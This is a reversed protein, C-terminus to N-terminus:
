VHSFLLFHLMSNDFCDKRGRIHSLVDHPVIYLDTDNAAPIDSPTLAEHSVLISVIMDGFVLNIDNTMNVIRRARTARCLNIVLTEEYDTCRRMGRVNELMQTLADSLSIYRPAWRSKIPQIKMNILNPNRGYVYRLIETSDEDFIKSKESGAFRLIECIAEDVVAGIAFRNGAAVELARRVRDITM